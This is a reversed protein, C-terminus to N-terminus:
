RQKYLEERGRQRCGEQDLWLTKEKELFGGRVGTVGM